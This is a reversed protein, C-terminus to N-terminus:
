TTFIAIGEGELSGLPTTRTEQPCAPYALRYPDFAVARRFTPVAIKLGRAPYPERGVGENTELM